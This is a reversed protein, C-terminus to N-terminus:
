RESLRRDQVLFQSLPRARLAYERPQQEQEIAPHRSSWAFFDLVLQSVKAWALPEANRSVFYAAAQTLSLDAHLFHRLGLEAKEARHPNPRGWFTRVRLHAALFLETLALMSLAAPVYDRLSDLERIFNQVRELERRDRAFFGYARGDSDPQNNFFADVLQDFRSQLAAADIEEVLFDDLELLEEEDFLDLEIIDEAEVSLVESALVDATDVRPDLGQIAQACQPWLALLYPNDGILNQAFQERAAFERLTEALAEFERQASQQGQSALDYCILSSALAAKHGAKQRLVDLYLSLREPQSQFHYALGLIDEIPLAQLSERLVLAADNAPNFPQM